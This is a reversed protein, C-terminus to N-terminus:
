KIGLRKANAAQWEKGLQETSKGTAAQWVQDSYTGERAAHNLKRILDKDHTEVVWNFFNASTRYSGDFKARAYNGRTIEAGKAQPEYLFWRIYDAIGETVWGPIKSPNPNKATVRGYSQVVHVLEHVVCGKAEGALQSRFWSVNMSVKNGATYAPTGGMDNRFELAVKDPAAYGDGPLLVTIKPYWDAVVPLLEKDVWQRLDPALATDAVYTIKGDASRLTTTIDAKVDAFCQSASLSAAILICVFLSQVPKM